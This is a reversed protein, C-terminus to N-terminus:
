EFFSFRFNLTPLTRKSKNLINEKNLNNKFGKGEKKKRRNGLLIDQLPKIENLSGQLSINQYKLFKDMNEGVEMEKKKEGEEIGKKM